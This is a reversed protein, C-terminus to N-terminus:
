VFLCFVEHRAWCIKSFSPYSRLYAYNYILEVLQYIAQKRIILIFIDMKKVLANRLKMAQCQNKKLFFDCISTKTSPIPSDCEIGQSGEWFPLIPVDPM